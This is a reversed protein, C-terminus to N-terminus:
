IMFSFLDCFIMFTKDAQLLYAFIAEFSIRIDAGDLSKSQISIM